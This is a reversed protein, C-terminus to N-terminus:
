HFTPTGDLYDTYGKLFWLEDSNRGSQVLLSYAHGARAGSRCIILLPGAPVEDLRGALESLPIHVANAAHGEAFEGPTRVDLIALGERTKVLATADEPSVMGTDPLANALAPLLMALALFLGPIMQKAFM